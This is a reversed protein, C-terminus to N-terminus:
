EETVDQQKILIELYPRIEDFQLDGDHNLDYMVWIKEVQALIKVDKSFKSQEYERKPSPSFDIEISGNLERRKRESATLSQM